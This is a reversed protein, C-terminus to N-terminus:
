NGSLAKMMARVAKMQPAEKTAYTDKAGESYGWWDFCGNPNADTKQIQPYLIILRNTNAWENYGAHLVMQLGFVASGEKEMGKGGPDRNYVQRCGHFVVHIRCERGSQCAKPVYAYGFENLSTKKALDEKNLPQPDVFEKQEFEILKGTASTVPEPPYLRAVPDPPNFETYIHMLAEGAGDYNCASMWPARGAENCLNGYKLTPMAHGAEVDRSYVIGDPDVGARVFWDYAKETVLPYVTKDAKGSFLFVRKKRLNKLPDILGKEAKKNADDVLHALVEDTLFWPYSMCDNLVKLIDGRACGYPGGAFVGVGAMIGSYAVFFQNAFFGGASLGSVSSREINVNYRKLKERVPRIEDASGFPCAVGTVLLAMFTMKLIRFM